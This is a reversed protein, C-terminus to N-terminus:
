SVWSASFLRDLHCMRWHLLFEPFPLSTSSFLTPHVEFSITLLFLLRRPLPLPSCTSGKPNQAIPVPNLHKHFKTRIRDQRLSLVPRISSPRQLFLLPINAQTQKRLTVTWYRSVWIFAQVHLTRSASYGRLLDNPHCISESGKGSVFRCLEKELSGRGRGAM